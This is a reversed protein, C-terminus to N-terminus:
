LAHQQSAIALLLLRLQHHRLRRVGSHCRVQSISGSDTWFCQFNCNISTSHTAVFEDFGFHLPHSLSTQDDIGYCCGGNKKWYGMQCTGNKPGSTPMPYCDPSGVGRDSLSGLHWKGYFGSLYGKDRTANALSYEGRKSFVTM